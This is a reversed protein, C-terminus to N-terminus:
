QIGGAFKLPEAFFVYTIIFTTLVIEIVSLQIKYITGWKQAYVACPNNEVIIM